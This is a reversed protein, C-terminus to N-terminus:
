LFWISFLLLRCPCALTRTGCLGSTAVARDLDFLLSLLLASLELFCWCVSVSVSYLIVSQQLFMHPRCHRSQQILSGASFLRFLAFRGYLPWLIVVFNM